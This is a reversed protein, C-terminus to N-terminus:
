WKATETKFRLWLSLDKKAYADPFKERPLSAKVYPGDPSEIRVHYIGGIEYPPMNATIQVNGSKFRAELEPTALRQVEAEVSQIAADLEKRSMAGYLEDWGESKARLELEARKADEARIEAAPDHPVTPPPTETRDALASTPLEEADHVAPEGSLIELEARSEPTVVVSPDPVLEVQVAEDRERDVLVLLGVIVLFAAGILVIAKGRSMHLM